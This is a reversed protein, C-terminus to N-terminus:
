FYPFDEILARGLGEAGLIQISAVQEKVLWFIVLLLVDYEVVFLDRARFKRWGLHLSGLQFNTQEVIGRRGSVSTTWSGFLSVFVLAYIVFGILSDALLFDM